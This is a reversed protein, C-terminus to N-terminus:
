GVCRLLQKMAFKEADEQSTFFEDVWWHGAVKVDWEKPTQDIVKFVLAYHGNRVFYTIHEDKYTHTLPTM